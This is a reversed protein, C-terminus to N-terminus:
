GELHEGVKGVMGVGIAHRGHLFLTAFSTRELPELMAEILREICHSVHLERGVGTIEAYEAAVDGFREQGHRLVESEGLAEEGPYPEIRVGDGISGRFAM